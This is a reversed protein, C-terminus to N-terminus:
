GKRGLRPRGAGHRIRRRAPQRHAAPRRHRGGHAARVRRVGGGHHHPRRVDPRHPRAPVRVQALCERLSGIRRRAERAGHARRRRARAPRRRLAHRLSRCGVAHRAPLSARGPGSLPPDALHFARLAQARPRLARHEHPQYVAQMMSRVILSEIFPRSEDHGLRDTIARFDRPSVEEPFEAAVGLANLTELLLNLKREEPKGHVRYLTGIRRLELERAVAVNALIM